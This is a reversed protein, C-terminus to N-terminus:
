TCRDLIMVKKPKKFVPQMDQFLEEASPDNEATSSLKKSYKLRPDVSETPTTNNPVVTVTLPETEWHEWDKDTDQLM